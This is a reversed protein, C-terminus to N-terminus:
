NSTRLSMALAVKKALREESSLHERLAQSAKRRAVLNSVVYWRGTGKEQKVFHGGYSHVFNVLHQSLETNRSTVLRTGSKFTRYRMEIDRTELTTTAKAAAAWYSM